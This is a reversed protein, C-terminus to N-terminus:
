QPKESEPPSEVLWGDVESGHPDVRRVYVTGVMWAVSRITSM